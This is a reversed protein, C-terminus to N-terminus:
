KWPTTESEPVRFIGRVIALISFLHVQFKLLMEKTKRKSHVTKQYREELKQHMDKLVVIVSDDINTRDASNVGGSMEIEQRLRRADEATKKFEALLTKISHKWFEMKQREFFRPKEGEKQLLLLIIERCAGVLTIFGEKQLLRSDRAVKKM